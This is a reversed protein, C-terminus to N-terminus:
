RSTQGSKSLFVVFLKIYLAALGQEIDRCVEFSFTPHRGDSWQQEFNTLNLM